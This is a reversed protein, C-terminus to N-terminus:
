RATEASTDSMSEQTEATDSEGVSTEGSAPAGLKNGDADLFGFETPVAPYYYIYPLSESSIHEECEGSEGSIRLVACDPNNILFAYGGRWNVVAVDKAYGTMPKYSRSFACKDDSKLEVEMPLYYHAQYEDGTIYWARAHSSGVTMGGYRLEVTDADSLPLEERAKEALGDPVDYLQEGACGSLAACLLGLAIILSYKKM